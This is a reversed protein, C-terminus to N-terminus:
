LRGVSEESRAIRAVAARGHRQRHHGVKRQGDSSKAVVPRVAEPDSTQDQVVFKDDADATMSGSDWWIADAIGFIGLQHFWGRVFQKMPLHIGNIFLSLLVATLVSEYPM